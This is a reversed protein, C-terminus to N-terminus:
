QQKHLDLAKEFTLKWDPPQMRGDALQSQIDDAFDSTLFGKEVFRRAIREALQQAPTLSEESTSM